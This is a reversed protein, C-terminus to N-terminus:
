PRRDAVKPRKRSDEQATRFARLAPFRSSLVWGGGRRLSRKVAARTPPFLVVLGLIDTLFGPTLLLAAGFLVLFGDVIQGTPVEGRSVSSRFSRWVALGQQKALLAGAVSIAILAFITPWLGIADGVAILVAIEALPVVLFLLALVAPM